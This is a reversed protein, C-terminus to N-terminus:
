VVQTIRGQEVHFVPFGPALDLQAQSLGTILLQAGTSVLAEMLRCRSGADLEAAPDDVLLVEAGGFAASVKAQALLLTAAVLKQQGRSASDRVSGAAM